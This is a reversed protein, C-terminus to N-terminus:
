VWCGTASRRRNGAREDVSRRRGNDRPRATSPEDRRAALSRRPPSATALPRRRQAFQQPRLPLWARMVTVGIQDRQGVRKMELRMSRRPRSRLQCIKERRRSKREPPARPPTSVSTPRRRPWVNGRPCLTMARPEASRKPRRSRSCNKPMQLSPTAPPTDSAFGTSNWSRVGLGRRLSPLLPPMVARPRRSPWNASSQRSAPGALSVTGHCNARATVPHSRSARWSTPEKRQPGAVRGTAM